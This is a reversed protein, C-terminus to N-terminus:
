HFIGGEINLVNGAYWSMPIIVNKFLFYPFRDWTM